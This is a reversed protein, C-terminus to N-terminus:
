TEFGKGIVDVTVSDSGIPCTLTFTTRGSIPVTFTDKVTLDFTGAGGTLTCGVQGKVDAKLVTDGNVPVTRPSATLDPNINVNIWVADLLILNAADVGCHLTMTKSSGLVLPETGNHPTRVVGDGKMECMLGTTNNTEWELNITQNYEPTVDDVNIFGSIVRIPSSVTCNPDENPGEDIVKGSDVCHQIYLDGTREKETTLVSLNHIDDAYAGGALGSDHAVTYDDADSWEGGIGDWQYTFNDVFKVDTPIASNNTVRASLPIGAGAKVIQPAVLESSVLDPETNVCANGTGTVGSFSVWGVVDSGWAFGSWACGTVSVGYDPGTGSLSIWGDWGGANTGGAPASLARAWGTVQGTTRNMQPACTGSPCGTENFSIWGIHESWAYGSIAGTNSVNVGYAPTCSGPNTCNLSVWGITDSWAYGSLNDSPSSDAPPAYTAFLVGAVVFVMVFVAFISQKVSLFKSNM